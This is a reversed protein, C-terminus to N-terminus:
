NARNASPSRTLDYIALRLERGDPHPHLEFGLRHMLALMQPNAALIHGHLEAFGADRGCDILRQMLAQGLGCGQWQDAIVIAFEAIRDNEAVYRAVGIQLEEGDLMTTAVLAMETTYDIHTFRHIQAPTPKVGAGHFRNYLSQPSLHDLFATEIDEDEPRIPRIQLWQGYVPAWSKALEAPTAAVRPAPANPQM